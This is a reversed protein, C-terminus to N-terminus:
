RNRMKRMMDVVKTIQGSTRIGVIEKGQSDILPMPPKEDDMKPSADAIQKFLGKMTELDLPVKVAMLCKAVAGAVADASDKSGAVVEEKVGGDPLFLIDKVIKPHDVKGDGDQELHKLETLLIQNHYGVWRREYVLNRFDMYGQVTKDLSFYEAKIGAKNLIQITDEAALLLDSTFMKINFGLARLDLVLKRIKHIPIRDGDKAKLRLVFDTEIIPLPVRMFTGDEKEIEGPMWGQLGAMSIASADQSFSIDLHLYRAVEKPLRIKSVDIFQILNIDDNLGIRIEQQLVPDNKTSDFCDVIFKESAFLKRRRLGAVTIGALDRLAGIIDRSFENKFEVPIDEIKYGDKLCAAISSVDIIKSPKFADGVAVPFTVGSFQHKPKVDWLKANFVLVEESDKMTEVFTDIFSDEGQKSAVLFLKGISYGVPAFRQKFRRVTADYTKVIKEKQTIPAIPSDVEDMIGSVVDEGIVGFGQAHPSSLVFKLLSFELFEEGKSISIYSANKRFWGSKSLYTQIKAYGRSEGLTKNLNFFSITMKGADALDFYNWPRRLLLLRYMIYCLAYLAITSKGTGIAGTLVILLKSNDSFMQQLANKWFPFVAAGRNTSKGLYYDDSIFTIVDVPTERYNEHFIHDVYTKVIRRDENDM